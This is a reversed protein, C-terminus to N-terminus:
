SLRKEFCVCRSDVALRGYPPITRYGKSRYLAIAAEQLTATELRLARYGYAAAARELAALIRVGHGNRRHAPATWMRKIEGVGAALRRLAGGAVTEGDAVLLLLTGTPPAFEAPDYVDFDDAVFDGYSQRYEQELADLLPRARPDGITASLLEPM